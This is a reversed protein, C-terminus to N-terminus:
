VFEECLDNAAAIDALRKKARASISELTSDIEGCFETFKVINICMKETLSDIRKATGVLCVINTFVNVLQPIKNGNAGAIHTCFETVQGSYTEAFWKAVYEPTLKEGRSVSNLHSICATVSIDEDSIESAGSVILERTIATQASVLLERVQGILSPFAEIISDDSIRPVSVCKSETLHESAYTKIADGNSDKEGTDVKKAQIVLLHQGEFPKSKQTKVVVTHRNSIISMNKKRPYQGFNAGICVCKYVYLYVYIYMYVCIYLHTHANRKIRRQRNLIDDIADVVYLLAGLMILLADEVNDLIDTYDLM